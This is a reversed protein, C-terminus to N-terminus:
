SFKICKLFELCDCGVRDNLNVGEKVSLVIELNEAIDLRTGKNYFHLFEVGNSIDFVHGESVVHASFASSEVRGRRICSLHEGIREQFSRGTQGVYKAGCSCTLSYVGSRQIRAVPDKNHVLISKLTFKNSFGIRIGLKGLLNSIRYSLNGVFPISFFRNECSVPASYCFSLFIKDLKRSYVKKISSIPFNNSHAVQLITRIELEFHYHSLPITFLRHFMSNFFALKHNLPHNSFYNICHDTHTPKRYIGFDVKGERHRLSLDLFNLLGDNEVEVTFKIREHICNLRNLINNVLALDGRLICFIDDVYRGWFIIESAFDSSLFSSELDDMFLDALFPSLPCGMSLGDPQSFIDGNFVFFNQELCVSLLDIIAQAEEDSLPSSCLLNGLVRLCDAVPISTFLNIVDFSVFICDPPLVLSSIRQVLDISNKVAFRFCLDLKNKLFRDLFLALKHAYSNTFSVVPRIPIDAKHIKPLGYLRPTQPNMPIVEYYHNYLKLHSYAKVVSKLKSFYRLSPNSELRSFGNSDLFDIVKNNYVPRNMIVLCNGKDAKSIVLDSDRVKTVVNHLPKQHLRADFRKASNLIKLLDSRFISIESSKCVRELIFEGEVALSKLVNSDIKRHPSFNLGLSLFELENSSFSADSLNLTRSHFNHVKSVTECFIHSVDYHFNYYKPRPFSDRNSASPIDTFIFRDRDNCDSFSPSPESAHSLLINNDPIQEFNDFIHEVGSDFDSVIIIPM